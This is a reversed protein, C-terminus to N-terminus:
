PTLDQSPTSSPEFASFALRSLWVLYAALLVASIVFVILLDWQTRVPVNELKLVPHLALVRLMHRMVVMGLVSLLGAGMSLQM